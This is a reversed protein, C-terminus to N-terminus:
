RDHRTGAVGIESATRPGQTALPEIFGLQLTLQLPDIESLAIRRQFGPFDCGNGSADCPIRRPSIGVLEFGVAVPLEDLVAGVVHPHRQPLKADDNAVVLELAAVLDRAYGLPRVALKVIRGHVPEAHQDVLAEPEEDRLGSEPLRHFVHCTLVREVRDSIVEITELPIPCWSEVAPERGVCLRLVALEHPGDSGDHQYSGHSPYTLRTDLEIGHQDEFTT